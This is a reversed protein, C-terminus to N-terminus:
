PKHNDDEQTTTLTINYETQLIHKFFPKYFDIDDETKEVRPDLMLTLCNFKSNMCDGYKTLKDKFAKAAQGVRTVVEGTDENTNFLITENCHNM